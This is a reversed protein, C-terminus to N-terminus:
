LEGAFARRLLTAPLANIIDLEADVATKTAAIHRMGASADCQVEIPPVEILGEALRNFLIRERVAGRSLSEILHAGIPSRFWYYFWRSDLIGDKGRVVVYDPSTIGPTDSEDVMAISGLLIRMPNYFITGYTVPKYREPTKGVPDKALALGQRTAGLVPYKAWEAGVGTRVEDLCEGLPMQRPRTGKLSERVLAFPYLEAANVQEEAAKRAREVAAMQENLLAAIRKQEPLPPIPCVAAYISAGSIVPQGMQNALNRLDMTTLLFFLFEDDLPCKKVDVYLANDTIWSKPRTLHVCGCLAGVRGIIVKPEEFMYSNHFGTIGNGGYVPFQGQKDMSTAPLFDGSSLHLVEGLKVSRWGKPLEHSKELSQFSKAPNKWDNSFEDRKKGLTMPFDKAPATM